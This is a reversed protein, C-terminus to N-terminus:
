VRKNNCVCVCVCVCGPCTNWVVVRVCECVSACVRVRGVHTKMRGELKLVNEFEEETKQVWIRLSGPSGAPPGPGHSKIDTPGVRVHFDSEWNSFCSGASPSPPPNHRFFVKFPQFSPKM